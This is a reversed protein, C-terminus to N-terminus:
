RVIGAGRSGAFGGSAIWLTWAADSAHRAWQRGYAGPRGVRDVAVGYSDIVIALPDAPELFTMWTGQALDRLATADGPRRSLEDFSPRLLEIAAPTQFPKIDDLFGDLRYGGAECGLVAYHADLAALAASAAPSRLWATDRPM